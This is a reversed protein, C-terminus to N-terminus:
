EVNARMPIPTDEEEFYRNLVTFADVDIPLTIQDLQATRVFDIDYMYDRRLRNIIETIGATTLNFVRGVNMPEYLVDRLGVQNSERVSKEQRELLVYLVILPKLQAVNARQWVIKNRNEVGRALIGLDILPSQKTDEPSRKKDDALYTRVLCNIDKKLSSLAIKREPETSLVWKELNDIAEQETFSVPSYHNFFWYWSTALDVNSVLHYHLLWLTAENEMYPDHRWVLEGFPTLRQVFRVENHEQTLGTAQMWFRLADVMNRGIGLKEPADDDLFITPLEGEDVSAQIARMGKFLWGDRIYFTQHNAFKMFKM